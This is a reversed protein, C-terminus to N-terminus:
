NGRKWESLESSHPNSMYAGELHALWAQLRRRWNVKPPPPLLRVAEYGQDVGMEEMLERARSEDRIRGTMLLIEINPDIELRDPNALESELRPLKERISREKFLNKYLNSM